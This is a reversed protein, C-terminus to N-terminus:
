AMESAPVNDLSGQLAFSDFGRQVLLYAAISACRGSDCYLLYKMKRDLKELKARLLPLPINVSHQIHRAQYEGPLRVDIWTAGDAALERGEAYSIWKLLPEKLLELFDARSLSMLVGATEMIVSANRKGGSILAEEGFSDGEQLTALLMGEPNKRTKRSVQCRGERIIYFHEGEEGQRVVSEGLTFHHTAMSMFVSQINAPPIRHLVKAQLLKAMWDDASDDHVGDLEQVEYGGAQGWSLMGDLVAPDVSVCIVDTLALAAYQYYRGQELPLKALRTGGKIRKEMKGNIYLEVEGAMVYLINKAEAGQEFVVGGKGVVSVESQDLLERCHAMGLAKIPVLSSFEILDLTAEQM